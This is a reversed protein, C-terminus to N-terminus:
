FLLKLALQLSRPGGSGYLSNLTGIQNPTAGAVGFCFLPQLPQPPGCPGFALYNYIFTFNPHNSINFAEARFQLKLREHIPFERRLALNAQWSGFGRASNRGANGEVGAPPTEFASYNLARGGPYQSGHLYLPQGPVANPHYNVSRQAVPDFEQFGIVDVPLASRASIRTDLGWHKLIGSLVPSSYSGPVDYTIAAQFTHRIDFDSNGRELEYLAFNNSANDMSHSWTYSALAQLGHALRREFQVQLADYDSATLNRTVYLCGGCVNSDFNPNGLSEPAYQFQTLLRRAASGVYTVTLANSRGLAQELALNWQLTYPLKLHPDFAYVLANYPPAVSPAPIADFQASTLPFNVGNLFDFVGFGVGSFGASGFTNGMDYFEGFGGRVVTEYGPTQRLKYAVGIRPAFGLWDTKWLPTRAPALKATALNAIQDLTYPSAGRANSPPPNVDWRLGLSLSLRPTVKWEDEAFASFNTYVPEVTSGLRDFAVVDASNSLVSAESNFGVDEGFLPSMSTSIRRWDLGFKLNHAGISWSHTDTLNYQRQANLVQDLAFTAFHGDYCICNFVETGIAPLPKGNPGPLSTPNFPTAGGLSTSRDSLQQNNETINFRLENTQRSSLMVTAGLTLLRDNVISNTEISNTYNSSVSPTDAYRGFVKFKNNFSHDVRVSISDIAAPFSLSSSYFGYGDNLGDEGANPVPFINLIPQVPAPAMNRLNTDPVPTISTGQPTWLRLGEYSFFFFTKDKGNYFGPIIIPGGLTGGFDNQREKERPQGFANTFWNNADLAENRFYDYASGHWGNTGSRTTFSFQGGPTRGYEASYTSTTARFEQLADISVMSQTTGLATEAPTAGAIGAGVGFFLPLPPGLTASVGDVTFYNAETRQGNVTLEGQNGVGGSNGLLTVGPVLTLLDQFSRGNLPMSEVFKHDIVTSVAADTTNVNVADATVTISESSSGVQLVFNRSVNDQVNLTIGTVSVTRFSQKRVSMLYNGPRLLPFSYFGQGNTSTMQPVNTDVNKIEVDVGPVVAGSPDTVRGSVSASESQAMVCHPQLVEILFLVISLTALSLFCRRLRALTPVATGGKSRTDM